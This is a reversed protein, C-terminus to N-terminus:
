FKLVINILLFPNIEFQRDFDAIEKQADEQIASVTKHFSEQFKQLQKRKEDAKKRIDVKELFDKAAASQLGLETIEANMEEIQLNEFTINKSEKNIINNNKLNNNEIIQRENKEKKDEIINIDNNINNEKKNTKKSLPSVPLAINIEENSVKPEEHSVKSNNLTNNVIIPYKENPKMENYCPNHIHCGGM